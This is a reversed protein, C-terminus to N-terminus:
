PTVQAPVRVRTTVAQVLEDVSLVDTPFGPVHLAVQRALQTPVPVDLALARLAEEQAFVQRPSGQLAIQGEALVVIRQAQAAESMQHTAHVITMGDAHLRRLTDLVQARGLPDLMATAEDLVLCRPRMALASAIALRQKQGTSLLHSARYRLKSLGVTALAWDVRQPLEDEPVGLNEPGFAVDEEVITAVIQSDPVQFVMGVTSRIERVRQLDRTNWGAVWVDGRTPRLLANCHRLLTSKGSGNAGVVAVYEGPAIALDIGRLAAIPERTGAQYVFHLGAIRILPEENANLNWEQHFSCVPAEQRYRL